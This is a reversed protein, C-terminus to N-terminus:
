NIGLPCDDNKQVVKTGIESLINGQSLSRSLHGFPIYSNVNKVYKWIIKWTFFSVLQYNEWCGGDTGGDNLVVM